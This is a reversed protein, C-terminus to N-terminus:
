DDLKKVFRIYIKKPTCVGVLRCILRGQSKTPRTIALICYPLGLYGIVRINKKFVYRLPKPKPLSLIHVKILRRNSAM